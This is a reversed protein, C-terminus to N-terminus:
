VAPLVRSLEDFEIYGKKYRDLNKFIMQWVTSPVMLDVSKSASYFDDLILYGKYHKDLLAFIIEANIQLDSTLCKKFIWREYEEYSVRDTSQFVQKVEVKDPRYGFVAAMAIKYQQKTLSGMSDVDAYDFATRAREKYVSPTM